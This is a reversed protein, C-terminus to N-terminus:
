AADAQSEGAAEGAKGRVFGSPDGDPGAAMWRLFGAPDRRELEDLSEQRRRVIHERDVAPLPGALAASSEIWESGLAETSLAAVPPLVPAVQRTEPRLPETGLLASLPRPTESTGVTASRGNARSEAPTRVVWVVLAAATALAALLAATVGGAIVSTGSLVLLVGVTWAAALVASEAVSRKLPGTAERAMGWGLCAALAGAVAVAVLGSGRLSLGGIAGVIGALVLGAVTLPRVFPRRTPM